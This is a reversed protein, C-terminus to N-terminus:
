ERLRSWSEHFERGHYVMDVVVYILILLLVSLILLLLPGFSVQAREGYMFTSSTEALFDDGEYFTARITYEGESLYREPLPTRWVFQETPSLYFPGYFDFFIEDDGSLIAVEAQVGGLVGDFQTADVLVVIEPGGPAVTDVVVLQEPWIVEVPLSRSDLVKGNYYLSVSLEDANLLYILPVDIPADAFEEAGILGRYPRPAGDAISIMMDSWFGHGGNYLPVRVPEGPTVLLPKDVIVPSAFAPDPTTFPPENDLIEAAVFSACLVTVMTLLLFAKKM